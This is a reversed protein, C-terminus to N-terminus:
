SRTRLPADPGDGARAGAEVVWRALTEIAAQRNTRQSPSDVGFVYLAGDSGVAAPHHGVLAERLADPVCPDALDLRACVGPSLWSGRYVGDFPPAGPRLPELPAEAYGHVIWGAASPRAPRLDLAPGLPQLADPLTARSAPHAYFTDIPPSRGSHISERDSSGRAGRQVPSGWGPSGWPARGT